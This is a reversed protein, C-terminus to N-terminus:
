TPPQVSVSFVSMIWPVRARAMAMGIAGDDSRSESKCTSKGGFSCFSRPCFAMGMCAHMRLVNKQVPLTETRLEASTAELLCVVGEENGFYFCM